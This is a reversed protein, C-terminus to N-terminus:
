HYGLTAGPLWVIVAFSAFPQVFVIATVNLAVGTEVAVAITVPVAQLVEFPVILIVPM